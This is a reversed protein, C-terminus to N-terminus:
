NKVDNVGFGRELRPNKNRFFCYLTLFVIM